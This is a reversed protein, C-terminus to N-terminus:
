GEFAYGFREIEWESYSAVKDILEPTYYTSYHDRDLHNLRPYNDVSIHFRDAIPVLSQPLKEYMGIYDVLPSNDLCLWYQQGPAFGFHFDVFEEFTMHAPILSSAQHYSYASVMREWPNRVFGFKFSQAFLQPSLVTRIVSAAVHYSCGRLVDLIGNNKLWSRLSSGATRPVHVFIAM